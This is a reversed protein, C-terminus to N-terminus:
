RAFLEYIEREFAALDGAGRALTEKDFVKLVAGDDLLMGSDARTALTGVDHLATVVSLGESVMQALAGKFDYAAVPDLWNFPEDLLVVKPAGIFASFIALRQRMGSSMEGIQRDGLHEVGLAAHIGAPTKPDARRAEGILELLEAGRLLGPLSEPAPAFGIRRARQDEEETLDEGDIVIAGDQVTLRGALAPSALYEIDRRIVLSDPTASTSPSPSMHAACSSLDRVTVKFRYDAPAIFRLRDAGSGATAAVSPADTITADMPRVDGGAPGFGDISGYGIPVATSYTASSALSFPVRYV